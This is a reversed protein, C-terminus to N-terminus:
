GAREGLAEFIGGRVMVPGAFVELHNIAFTEVDAVSVVVARFDSGEEGKAM